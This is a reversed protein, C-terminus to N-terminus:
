TRRARRCRGRRRRPRAPARAPPGPAAALPSPRVPRPARPGRRPPLPVEVGDELQRHDVNGGNPAAAEMNRDVAHASRPRDGDSGSSSRSPQRTLPILRSGSPLNGRGGSGTGSFRPSSPRAPGLLAAGVEPQRHIGVHVAQRHHVLGAPRDPLVVGQRERDAGHQISAAIRCFVRGDHHVKGGAQHNLIRRAGRPGRQHPSRDAFGIDGTRYPVLPRHDAPLPVAPDHEGREVDSAVRGQPHGQDQMEKGRRPYRDSPQDVGGGAVGDHLGLPGRPGSSPGSYSRNRRRKASAVASSRSPSRSEHASRQSCMRGDPVSGMTRSSRRPGSKMRLPLAPPRPDLVRATLTM